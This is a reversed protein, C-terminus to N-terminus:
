LLSDAQNEPTSMKIGSQECYVHIQKALLAAQLESHLLAIIFASYDQFGGRKSALRRSILM